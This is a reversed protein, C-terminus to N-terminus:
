DSSIIRTLWAVVAPVRTFHGRAYHKYPTHIGATKMFSIRCSSAEPTINMAKLLSCIYEYGYYYPLTQWFFAFGSFRRQLLGKMGACRGHTVLTGAGATKAMAGAVHEATGEALLPRQVRGGEETSEPHTQRHEPFGSSARSLEGCPWPEAQRCVLM